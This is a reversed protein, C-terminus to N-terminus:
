IVTLLAQELEDLTAFAEFRHSVLGQRDVVFTWETSPLRWELATPSVRAVTLDGQIERPNDYIDVHVFNAQGKYKNKLEQLVEVQPGCVANTCFAPSAMVIVTPLGSDVADAISVQYLDPDQLSGTTLEELEEVDNITKSRSPVAPAGVAVASAVEEVDFFLETQRHIGDRDTISIDLVWRGPMDFTLHTTYFGRTGYPWPRFQAKATQKLEGEPYAPALYLSSVAAEPAKVLDDTTTLVFGVRNDGVALDPTGFIAQLGDPSTPGAVLSLFGPKLLSSALESQDQAPQEVTAPPESSGSCAAGVVLFVLCAALVPQIGSGWSRLHRM